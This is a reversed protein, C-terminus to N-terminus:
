PAAPPQTLEVVEDRGAASREILEAARHRDVRVHGREPPGVVIVRPASRAQRRDELGIVLRRFPTRPLVDDRGIRLREVEESDGGGDASIESQIRVLSIFAASSRLMRRTTFRFNDTRAQASINMM